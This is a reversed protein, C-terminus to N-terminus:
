GEFTLHRPTQTPAQVAPCGTTRELVAIRTNHEHVRQDVDRITTDLKDVATALKELSTGISQVNAKATAAFVVVGGIISLITLIGVTLSVIESPQM